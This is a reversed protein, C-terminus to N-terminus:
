LSGLLTTGQFVKLGYCNSTQVAAPMIFRAKYQGLEDFDAATLERFTTGDDFTVGGVQVRLQVKLDPLVPSFIVMMEVLRSGDPYTKIVQDYTDRAGFVRFSNVTASALVPGNTGLRSLIYRPDLEETLLSLRRGDGPLDAVQDVFMRSDAELVIQTNISAVDWSRAKGAWCAPSNTFSQDIVNVTLSGTQWTGQSSIYKGAVAAPGVEQFQYALPQSAKRAAFENTGITFSMQGTGPGTSPWAALALSDGKRLTLSGGELVNAVAWHLRRTESKAGNQYTFLVTTDSNDKLPINVYWRGNPGRRPNASATSGAVSIKMLVPYPDHGELCFPSTYNTLVSGTLDLASQADIRAAVWDKIGDGNSDSGAATQMRLSNIRLSSNNAAGDWFVRVTHTGALLYPTWCEVVGNTGYGATLTHRGLNEGDLSLALDFDNQRSSPVAQTGELQLRYMDAAPLTFSYEVAGRRGKAVLVTGDTAWRGLHNTNAQAGALMVVDAISGLGPVTTESPANTTGTAYVANLAALLDLHGDAAYALTHLATAKQLSDLQVQGLRNQHLLQAAPFASFYSPYPAVAINTFGFDAPQILSARYAMGFPELLTNVKNFTPMPFGEGHVYPWPLFTTVLGGGSAVFSTVRKMFEDSQDGKFDIVLVDCGPIPNPDQAELKKELVRVEYGWGIFYNTDMNKSVGMVIETASSRRSVWKIANEFLQMRGDGLAHGWQEHAFAACRAAKEDGKYKAAAALILRNGGREVLLPFASETLLAISGYRSNYSALVTKGTVVPFSSVGATLAAYDTAFPGPPVAAASFVFSGAARREPPGINKELKSHGLRDGRDFYRNSLLFRLLGGGDNLVVPSTTSTTLTVDYAPNTEDFGNATLTYRGPTLTVPQKLPRFRFGRRLEGPNAADFAVTELLLTDYGSVEYLQVRIVASGQIGDGDHDFMGLETVTIPQLVEFDNRVGYDEKTRFNGQTATSLSWATFKTQASLPSAALFMAVTSALLAPVCRVRCCRCTFQPNVGRRTPKASLSLLRGFIARTRYLFARASTKWRLM